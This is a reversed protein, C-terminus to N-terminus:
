AIRRVPLYIESIAANRGGTQLTRFIQLPAADTIAFRGSAGIVGALKRYAQAVTQEAGHHEIRGFVGGEFSLCRIRSDGEVAVAVPLCIDARMQAPPTMGPYDPFFGLRDEGCVIGRASAWAGLEDWLASLIEGSNNEYAGIQRVAILHAPPLTVFSVDSLACGDGDFARQYEIRQTQAAKADARYQSPTKAYARKFARTFTEHSEYGVAAAIEVIPDDTVCILYWARELRLREVHRKPTEGIAESFLRHFHFPSVGFKSALTTLDADGDLNDGLEILLPIM